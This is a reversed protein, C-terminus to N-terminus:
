SHQYHQVIQALTAEFSPTSAITITNSYKKAAAATTNGICFLHSKAATNYKFFSHVASPSFFAIGDFTATFKKEIAQTQYCHVENFVIHAHKLTNPLVENRSSSGIFTFSHQQYDSVIKKALTAGNTACYTVNFGLTELTAKTQEGVCFVAAKKLQSLQSATLIELATKSTIIYFDSKPITKIPIPTITIADYFTAVIDNNELIHHLEAPLIKTILVKPNEKSSGSKNQHLTNTLVM